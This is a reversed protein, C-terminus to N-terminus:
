RRIITMQIKNLSHLCIAVVVVYSSAFVARIEWWKDPHHYQYYEEVIKLNDIRNCNIFNKGDKCLIFM